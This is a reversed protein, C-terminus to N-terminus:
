VGEKTKTRTPKYTLLIIDLYIILAAFVYQEPNLKYKKRGVVLECDVLLYMAFVLAGVCSYVIKKIDSYYFISLFGFILLDVLLVFLSSTFVNFKVLTQASFIVISFLILLTSGLAIVVENKNLYSALTGVMYSLSLTVLVLGLLNLPFKHIYKYFTALFADVAGFVIYSSIHVWEHEQIMKKVTDSFTCVCVVTFTILIQITLLTFMKRIFAKRITKDEFGPALFEGEQNPNSADKEVAHIDSDKLEGLVTEEPRLYPVTFGAESPILQPNMVPDSPYPPSMPMPVPNDPEASHSETDRM